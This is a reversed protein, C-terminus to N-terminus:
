LVESASALLPEQLKFVVKKISNLGLSASSNLNLAFLKVGFNLYFQDELPTMDGIKLLTKDNGGFAEVKSPLLSNKQDSDNICFGIVFSTPM